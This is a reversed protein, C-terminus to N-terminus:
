KLGWVSVVLVHNYDNNTWVEGGTSATCWGGNAPSKNGATSDTMVCTWHADEVWNMELAKVTGKTTGWGFTGFSKEVADTGSFDFDLLGATM